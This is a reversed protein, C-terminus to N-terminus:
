LAIGDSSYLRVNASIINGGLCKRKANGKKGVATNHIFSSVRNIETLHINLCHINCMYIQKPALDMLLNSQVRFFFLKKIANIAFCYM